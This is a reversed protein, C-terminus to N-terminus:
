DEKYELVYREKKREKKQDEDEGSDYYPLAKGKVVHATGLANLITKLQAQNWIHSHARIARFIASLCRSNLKILYERYPFESLKHDNLRNLCDVLYECSKDDASTGFILQVQNKYDLTSDKKWGTMVGQLLTIDARLQGVMNTLLNIGQVLAYDRINWNSQNSSM